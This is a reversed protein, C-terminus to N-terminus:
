SETGAPFGEFPQPVSIPKGPTRGKKLWSSKPKRLVLLVKQLWVIEKSKHTRWRSARGQFLGNACSRRIRFGSTTLQQRHTKWYQGPAVCPARGVRRRRGSKPSFQKITRSTTKPTRCVDFFQQSSGAEAPNTVIKRNTKGVVIEYIGSMFWKGM